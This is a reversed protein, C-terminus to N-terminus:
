RACYAHCRQLFGEVAHATVLEGEEACPLGPLADLLSAAYRGRGNNRPQGDAGIVEVTYLGCSPSRAKFIYGHLTPQEYAVRQGYELLADTVDQSPDDVGLVRIIGAHEVLHITPRPVGLGIAIEPCLPILEARDALRELLEPQTRATGDYRVAEGALCASIGIRLPATM